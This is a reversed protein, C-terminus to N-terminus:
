IIGRIEELVRYFYYGFTELIAMYNEPYNVVIFASTLVTAGLPLLRLISAKSKKLFIIYFILFFLITFISLYFYFPKPYQYDRLMAREQEKHYGEPYGEGFVFRDLIDEGELNYMGMFDYEEKTFGLLESLSLSAKIHTAISVSSVIIPIFLLINFLIFLINHYAKRNM